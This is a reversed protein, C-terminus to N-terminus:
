QMLSLDGNIITPNTLLVEHAWRVTNQDPIPYYLFIKKKLFFALGLEMLASTGIYGEINNRTHNLILVADSNAVSEFGARMLDHEKVHAMNTELDDVLSPNEINKEIGGPVEVAHGLKELAKKAALMETAFKMSGCIM